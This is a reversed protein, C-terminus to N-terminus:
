FSGTWLPLMATAADDEFVGRYGVVVPVAALAALGAHLLRWPARQWETRAGIADYVRVTDNHPWWAVVDRSFDVWTGTAVVALALRGYRNEPMAGTLVLAAYAGLLVAGSAKPAALFLARQRTTRVGRVDVWGFYFRRTRPHIGPVLRMSTVDLGLATAALAHSGEHVTVGIAYSVPAMTIGALVLHGTDPREARAPREMMMALAAATALAVASRSPM